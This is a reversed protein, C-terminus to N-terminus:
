AAFKVKGDEGVSFLDNAEGVAVVWDIDKLQDGVAKKLNTPVPPKHQAICLFAEIKLKDVSDLTKGRKAPALTSIIIAGAIEQADYGSDSTPAPASAPAPTPASAAAAKGKGKAATGAKGGGKQEYPYEKIETVVFKTPDTDMDKRWKKETVTQFYAYLGIMDPFYSRRILDDRFGKDKLSACFKTWKCDMFQFGEKASYVTDGESGLDGGMDEPDTAPDGNPYKGPRLIELRSTDKDPNQIQLVVQEPQAASRLGDANEYRQITLEAALFPPGQWGEEHGFQAKKMPPYQFVIAKADVVKGWGDAFVGKFNMVDDPHSSVRPM